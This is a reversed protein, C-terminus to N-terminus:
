EEDDDSEEESEAENLWTVFPAVALAFKDPEDNGKEYENAWTLIAPEGLM